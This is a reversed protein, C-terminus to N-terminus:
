GSTAACICRLRCWAAKGTCRISEERWIKMLRAHTHRASMVLSDDLSWVTPIEALRTAPTPAILYPHDDDQFSSDYQFGMEALLRLTQSSLEGSPARFGTPAVGCLQSLM